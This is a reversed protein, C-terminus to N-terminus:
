PSPGPEGTTKAADRPSDHGPPAAPARSWFSGLERLGLIAVSIVLPLVYYSVRYALVASLLEAVPIQPLLLLILGEFVGLGGPVSSAVGMFMAILYAGLFALYPVDVTAPLLMYLTGGAAVLDIGAFLIQQVATWGGPLELRWQRFRLPSTRTASAIVYGTPVTILITAAVDLILRPIGLRSVASLPELALALGLLMTGGLIFTLACFVVVKGIEIPSLGLATYGRFRVSGASVAAVGVNHGVAFATFSIVWMRWLSVPHKIHGLALRDYNTLSAYSVATLCVATAMQSFTLQELEATVQHWSIGAIEHHLVYGAAALVGLGVVAPLHKLWRRWSSM